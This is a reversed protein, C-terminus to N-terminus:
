QLLRRIFRVKSYVSNLKLITIIINYNNIKLQSNKTIDYNLLKFEYENNSNTMHNKFM